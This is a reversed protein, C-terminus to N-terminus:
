FRLTLAAYAGGPTPTVDVQAVERYAAYRNPDEGSIWFFTAAVAGAAAVGASVYSLTEAQEVESKLENAQARQSEDGDLLARRVYLFTGPSTENGYTSSADAQFYIAAAAGVVAVGTSIWAGLRLKKQRSEYQKIFDPSPVLSVPEELVKNPEISIDRQYTVFGQKEVSLTHPGGPLPIAGKLPTTGKIQDDVKVTAGTERMSVVLRGGRGALVKQVLKAVARSVRTMLEAESRATEIAAGERTGKRVGSLTLDLSLTEPLGASAALRTVKGSVVYDAGLAGGIESICAADTCGLMQKQKEFALLSRIAENTIVQFAALKDLENAVASNAASALEKSAGNATFDMVAVKPRGQASAALPLAAALLVLALKKMTPMM